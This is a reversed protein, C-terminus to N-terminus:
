QGLRALLASARAAPWRRVTLPNTGPDVDVGEGPGLTVGASAALRRVAVRGEVVLVSTRRRGVDVAWKTGRVSAIAQPTIVEFGGTRAAARPVEVLVAKRRLRIADTKGNGDRDVLDFRAGREAIITVGKDCHLIRRASGAEQQLMCGGNRSQAMAAPPTHQFLAFISFAVMLNRPAVLGM